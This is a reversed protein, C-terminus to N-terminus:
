LAIAIYKLATRIPPMRHWVVGLFSTEKIYYSSVNVVGLRAAAAVIPEYARRLPTLRNRYACDRVTWRLFAGPLPISMGVSEAVLSAMRLTSVRDAAPRSRDPNPIPMQRLLRPSSGTGGSGVTASPPRRGHARRSRAGHHRSSCLVSSSGNVRACNSSSASGRADVGTPKPEVYGSACRGQHVGVNRHPPSSRRGSRPISGKMGSCWGCRGNRYERCYRTRRDM